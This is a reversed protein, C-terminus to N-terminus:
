RLKQCEPLRHHLFEWKKIGVMEPLAAGVVHVVLDKCQSLRRGRRLGFQFCVLIVRNKCLLYHWWSWFNLDFKHAFKLRIKVLWPSILLCNLISVTTFKFRPLWPSASDQIDVSPPPIPLQIWVITLIWCKRGAHNLDSEQHNENQNTEEDGRRSPWSEALIQIFM